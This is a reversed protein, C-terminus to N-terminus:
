RGGKAILQLKKAKINAPMHRIVLEFYILRRSPTFSHYRTWWTTPEKAAYRIKLDKLLLVSQEISYSANYLLKTKSLGLRRIHQRNIQGIGYDGSAKNVANVRMSSEQMFIAKVIHPPVNHKEALKVVLYDLASSNAEAMLGAFVIALASIFLILIRM